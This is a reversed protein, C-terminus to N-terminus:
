TEGGENKSTPKLLQLDKELRNKWYDRLSTLPEWGQRTELMIRKEQYKIGLVFSPNHEDTNEM